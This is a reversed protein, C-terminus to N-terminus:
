HQDIAIDDLFLNIEAFGLPVGLTQDNAKVEIKLDFPEFRYIDFGGAGGNRNSTFYGSQNNLDFIISRDDASSNIPPPLIEVNTWKDIEYSCQYIDWGGFGKLVTM